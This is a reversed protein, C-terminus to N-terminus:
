PAIEEIIRVITELSHVVPWDIGDSQHTIFHKGPWAMRICRVWPAKRRADVLHEPTDDRITGQHLREQIWPAGSAERACALLADSEFLTKDLDFFIDVKRKM